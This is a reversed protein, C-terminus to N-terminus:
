MQRGFKRKKNKQRKQRLYEAQNEDYGNGPQIDFLGGLISAATELTSTVPNISTQYQQQSQNVNAEIENQNLQYDVKSFSFQRDVKSGNFHYGNKEFTVGQIESTQGKYKFQVDVGERRLRDLLDKWNKAKETERKLTHYIEYKTKDPEKLRHEKVQEKGNAFYLDYKRTLEKCIKESRYKDNSDSITKGENNIRNFAIHCHPHEKDFHRGIMYQTNTIGMKELYEKAIKVMLGETIKETDQKAFSLVIHGVPKSVRNNLQAQDEFSQIIADVSKTRIGCSAILRASKDQDVIYNIMGKFDQGKIIKAIM